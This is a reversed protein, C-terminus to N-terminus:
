SLLIFRSLNTVILPKAIHARLANLQGVMLIGLEHIESSVLWQKLHMDM